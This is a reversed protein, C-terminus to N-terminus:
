SVHLRDRVQDQDADHLRDYDRTHLRDRDYSVATVCSQDRDRARTQDGAGPVGTRLQDRTQLLVQEQGTAPPGAPDGSSAALAVGGGALLGAMPVALLLAKSNRRM